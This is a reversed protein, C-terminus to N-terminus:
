AEGPPGPMAVPLLGGDGNHEGNHKLCEYSIQSMSFGRCDVLRVSKTMLGTTVHVWQFSFESVYGLAPLWISKDLNKVIAHQDIGAWHLFGIVGRRTDPVLLQIPGDQCYAQHQRVIENPCNKGLPHARIDKEDLRHEKRFALTTKAAKAAVAEHKAQPQPPLAPDSGQGRQTQAESPAPTPHINQRTVSFASWWRTPAPTQNDQGV